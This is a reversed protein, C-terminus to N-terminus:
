FACGAQAASAEVAQRTIADMSQGQLNTYYSCDQAAYGAAFLGGAPNPTGVLATPDCASLAAFPLAVIMFRAILM